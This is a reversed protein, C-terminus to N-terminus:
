RFRFNYQGIKTKDIKCQLAIMLSLCRDDHLGNKASLQMKGTKTITYGFDSLEQKLAANNEDFTINNTDFLIQLESAEQLKTANTTIFEQLIHKNKIQKRIENIMPTGVGNAELYCLRINPTNNILKAINHYRIDLTGDFEFQLVQNSQNILTAVTKDTGVSSFDLGLYLPENYNFNQKIFCQSYNNFFSGAEDIFEVLFEQRFALEPLSSKIENIQEETVLSDDYITKKLSFWNPYDNSEGRLFFNYFKNKGCPTSVIVVKDCRAKTTPFIINDYLDSGDTQEFQFFAFEDLLLKTFTLGRLSNGSESSFFTLTSTGVTITLDTANSQKVYGQPLIQMLARYLKKALIYNRCIYGIYQNPSFLWTVCLVQCLISKGSQRSFNLVYYKYQPNNIAEWVQKQSPTLNINLNLEM